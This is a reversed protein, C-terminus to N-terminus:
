PADPAHIADELVKYAIGAALAAIQFPATITLNVQHDGIDGSLQPGSLRLSADLGKLAGSYRGSATRAELDLELKLNEGVLLGGMRVLVLNPRVEGHVDFGRLAGGVRGSVHLVNMPDGELKLQVNMGVVTGGVRGALRTEDYSLSVDLGDKSGGIRGFVTRM